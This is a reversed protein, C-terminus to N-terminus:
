KGEMYYDTTDIDKYENVFISDPISDVKNAVPGMCEYKMSDISSLIKNTQKIGIKGWMTIGVLIVIFGAFQKDM